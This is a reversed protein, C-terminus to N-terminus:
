VGLTLFLEGRWNFHFNDIQINQQQITGNVLVGVQVTTPDEYVWPTTQPSLSGLSMCGQFCTFM